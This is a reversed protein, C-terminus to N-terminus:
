SYDQDKFEERLTALTSARKSRSSSSTSNVSDRVGTVSGKVVNAVSGHVGTGVAKVTSQVGSGLHTFGEKFGTALASGDGTTISKGVGKVIRSGGGTIGGFFHGLGEGAGKFLAGAGEGVGQLTGGVFGGAGSIVANAGTGLGKAGLLAAGNEVGQGIAQVGVTVSSGLDRGVKNFAFAVSNGAVSGTVRLLDGDVFEDDGEDRAALDKWDGFTAAALITVIKLKVRSVYVATLIEILRDRPGKLSEEEYRAFRLDCHDITFKLQQTFYRMLHAGENNVFKDYRSAEPNRKFSVIINFPSVRALAIDYITAVQPSTHVDSPQKYSPVYAALAEDFDSKDAPEKSAQLILDATDILKWVFNESTQLFMKDQSQEDGTGSHALILDFLDVKVNRDYLPGKTRVCVDIFRNEGTYHFVKPFPSRPTEDRISFDHVIFSLQCREPVDDEEESMDEREKFLKQIDYIVRKMLITCIPKELRSNSDLASRGVANSNSSAPLEKQISEANSAKELTGRGDVESWSSVAQNLTVAFEDAQIRFRLTDNGVWSPFLMAVPSRDPEREIQGVEGLKTVLRSGNGGISTQIAVSGLSEGGPTEVLEIHLGLEEVRLSKTAGGIGAYHFSLPLGKRHDVAFVPKSKGPEITVDVAGQQRVVVEYKSSGNFVLFEPIINLESQFSSVLKRYAFYGSQSGDDWLIPTAQAGGTSMSVEEVRFLASRRDGSSRPLLLRIPIESTPLLVLRKNSEENYKFAGFPIPQEQAASIGLFGKGKGKSVLQEFLISGTHDVGYNGVTLLLTKSEPKTSQTLEAHEGDLKGNDNIRELFFNPLTPTAEAVFFESGPSVSPAKEDNPTVFPLLCLIPKELKSDLQVNIWARSTGTPTGEGPTDALRLKVALSEGGSYVEIKSGPELEHITHSTDKRDSNGISNKSYCHPLRTLVTIRVPITSVLMARPEFSIYSVIKEGQILQIKVAATIVFNHTDPETSTCVVDVRSLTTSNEKQSLEQIDAEVVLTGQMMCECGPILPSIKMELRGKGEAAWKEVLKSQGPLRVGLRLSSKTLTGDKVDYPVLRSESRDLLSSTPECVGLDVEGAEHVVSIRAPIPTRNRMYMNSSLRLITSLGEKVVTTVLMTGDKLIHCRKPKGLEDDIRDIEITDDEGIFLKISLDQVMDQGYVRKGGHGRGRPPPFRFYQKTGNPCDRRGVRSDALFYEVTLGSFNDLAYPLASVLNRTSSARLSREKGIAIHSEQELEASMSLMRNASGLGILFNESFSFHLPWFHADARTSFRGSKSNADPQRITKLELQWPDKLLPKWYNLSPDYYDAIMVMRHKIDFSTQTASADNVNQISSVAGKTIIEDLELRFLAEDLGQLDNIITVKSKPFAVNITVISLCASDRNIAEAAVEGPQDEARQVPIVANDAKGELVLALAEIEQKTEEDLIEIPEMKEERKKLGEELCQSLENAIAKLLSMTRMSITLDIGDDCKAKVATQKATQGQTNLTVDLTGTVPELIQLPRRLEKGFGSFMEFDVSKIELSTRSVAGNKDRALSVSLQMGGELALGEAVNALPMASGSLSNEVNIGDSNQFEGADYIVCSYKTTTMEFYVTTFLATDAENSFTSHVTQRVQGIKVLEGQTREAKPEDEAATHAVSSKRKKPTTLTSTRKPSITSRRTADDSNSAKGENTELTNMWASHVRLAMLLHNPSFKFNSAAITTFVCARPISSSVVSEVAFDFRVTIPEIISEQAATQNERLSTTRRRWTEAEGVLFTMKELELRGHDVVTGAKAAAKKEQLASLDNSEVDRPNDALWQTVKPNVDSFGYQFRFGGLDLVIVSAKPDSSSEPLVLIPAQIDLDISLSTKEKTKERWADVLANSIDASTTSAETRDRKAAIEDEDGEEDEGESDGIIEEIQPSSPVIPQLGPPLKVFDMMETMLHPAAVAEFPILKATMKKDGKKSKSIAVQFADEKPAGEEEAGGQPLSRVIRPFLSSSHLHDLVELSQLSYRFDFSGGADSEFTASVRGMELGMMPQSMAKALHIQFRGLVFEVRCLKADSGLEEVAEKEIGVNELEKLEELSLTIPTEEEEDATENSSSSGFLHYLMGGSQKKAAEKKTQQEQQKKQEAEFQADAINRWAMIGEVSISRDAELEELDAVEVIALPKLWKNTASAYTKRKYLQIYKKRAKYAEFFNVWSRRGNLRGVCRFAYRWWDKASKATVRHLPRLEPFLPCAAHPSPAMAALLGMTQQYQTQSLGLKVAPVKSKLLWKPYDQTISPDAQRLTSEFTLPDLVYDQEGGGGGEEKNLYLGLGKIQLKKYLFKNLLDSPNDSSMRDVFTRHGAMDTTVFSLNELVMGATGDQGKLTVRVNNIEVQLNEVIRTVLRTVFSTNKESPNEDDDEDEDYQTLKMLEKQHLRNENSTEISHARQELIHQARIDESSVALKLFDTEQLRDHPAVHVELGQAKMVVSQNSLHAWPIELLISKFSGGVVKLPVALNPAEAAQRDLEANCARTDLQLDHLEVKGSWIGVNLKQADLDLVYKGITNQLVGLLAEKAM